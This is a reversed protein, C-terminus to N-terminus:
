RRDVVVTRMRRAQPEVFLTLDREIAATPREHHRAPQLLRACVGTCLPVGAIKFCRGDALRDRLHLSVWIAAFMNIREDTGVSCHSAVGIGSLTADADRRSPWTSATPGRRIRPDLRVVTRQQARARGLSLRM